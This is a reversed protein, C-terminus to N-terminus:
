KKTKPLADRVTLVKTGDYDIVKGMLLQPKLEAGAPVSSGNVSAGILANSMFGTRSENGDSDKVTVGIYFGFRKVTDPNNKTSAKVDVVEGTVPSFNEVPMENGIAYAISNDLIVSKKIESM